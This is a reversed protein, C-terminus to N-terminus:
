PDLSNLLMWQSKENNVCKDQNTNTMLEAEEEKTYM